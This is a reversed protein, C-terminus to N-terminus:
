TSVATTIQFPGLGAVVMVSYLGLLVHGTSALECLRVTHGLIGLTMKELVLTCCTWRFSM